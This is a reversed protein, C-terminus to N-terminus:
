IDDWDPYKARMRAEVQANIQANRGDRIAEQERIFRQTGLEDLGQQRALIRDFNRQRQRERQISQEMDSAVEDLEALINLLNEDSNRYEEQQYAAEEARQAQKRQFDIVKGM